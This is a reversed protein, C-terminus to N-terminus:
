IGQVMPIMSMALMSVISISLILGSVLRVLKRIAARDPFFLSLRRIGFIASIFIFPILYSNYYVNPNWYPGFTTIGSALAWPLELLWAPDFFSMFVLPTNLQFFSELKSPLTPLLNGGTNALNSTIPHLGSSFYTIVASDVLYFALSVVTLSIGLLAGRNTRISLLFTKIKRAFHRIHGTEKTSDARTRMFYVLLLYLGVSVGLLPAFEMTSLALLFTLLFGIFHRTELFYFSFIILGLFLTLLKFVNIQIYPFFLYALAIFFASRDDKLHTRAILFLPIAAGFTIVMQVAYLTLSSYKIIVTQLLIYLFESAHVLFYSGGPDTNLFPKSLLFSGLSPLATSTDVIGTNRLSYIQIATYLFDVSTWLVTFAVTLALFNVRRSLKM